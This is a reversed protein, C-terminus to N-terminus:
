CCQCLARWGGLLGLLCGGGGVKDANGKPQFHPGYYKASLRQGDGDLVVIAAM